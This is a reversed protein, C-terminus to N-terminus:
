EEPPKFTGLVPVPFPGLGPQWGAELKLLGVGGPAWIHCSNLVGPTSRPDHTPRGAPRDRARASIAAQIAAPGLVRALEYLHSCGAAGRFREQVARNYGSAISLGTLGEFASTILPCEAHPFTGMDARASIIMKDALRIRVVLTMRHIVASRGDGGAEPRAWPREDCLEAEVEMEGEGCAYATVTIGRRHLPVAGRVDEGAGSM